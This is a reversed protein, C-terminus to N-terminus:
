SYCNLCVCALRCAFGSTRGLGFRDRLMDAIREAPLEDM